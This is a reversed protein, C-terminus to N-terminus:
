KSWFGGGDYDAKYERLKRDMKKALRHAEGLLAHVAPDTTARHAERLVECITRRPGRFTPDIDDTV